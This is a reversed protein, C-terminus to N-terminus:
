AEMGEYLDPRLQQRPIGTIDEIEKLRKAPLPVEGNEWRIITAKNVGFLAAVEDLRRKAGDNKRFNAFATKTPM